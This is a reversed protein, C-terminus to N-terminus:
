QRLQQKWRRGDLELEISDQNIKVVVAGLVTDGEHVIQTGVIAASREKSYLIGTVELNMLQEAQQEDTKVTMTGSSADPLHLSSLGGGWKMPDRASKSMVAPLEWNVEKESAEEGDSEAESASAQSFGVGADSRAPEGLVKVFILVLIVALVPILLAMVKQRRATSDDLDPPLVRALIGSLFDARKSIPKVVGRPRDPGVPRSVPHPKPTAPESPASPGIGAIAQVATLAGSGHVQSDDPAAECAKGGNPLPVGEFITSVEKHLGPGQKDQQDM